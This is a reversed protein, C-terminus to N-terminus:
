VIEMGAVGNAGYLLATKKQYLRAAYGGAYEIHNDM